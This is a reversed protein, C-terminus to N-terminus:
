RDEPRPIMWELAWAAIQYEDGDIKLNDLAELFVETDEYDFGEVWPRWDGTRLATIVAFAVDDEKVQWWRGEAIQWLQRSLDKYLGPGYEDAWEMMYTRLAVLQRETPAKM